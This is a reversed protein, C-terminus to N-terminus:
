LSYLLGSYIDDSTDTDNVEINDGPSIYMFGTTYQTLGTYGFEACVDPLANLYDEWSEREGSQFYSEEIKGQIKTSKLGGSSTAKAKNVNAISKLSKCLVEEYNDDDDGVTTIVKEYLTAIQNSTLVNDSRMYLDIDAELVDRDITAM